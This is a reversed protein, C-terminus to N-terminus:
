IDNIIKNLVKDIALQSDGFYGDEAMKIVSKLFKLQVQNTDFHPFLNSKQKDVVIQYGQAYIEDYQSAYKDTIKNYKDPDIGIKNNEKGKEEIGQAGAYFDIGAIRLEKPKKNLIDLIAYVGTLTFDPFERSQNSNIFFSDQRGDMKPLLNNAVPRFLLGPYNKFLELSNQELCQAHFINLEESNNNNNNNNNKNVKQFDVLTSPRIDKLCKHCSIKTTADPFIQYTVNLAKLEKMWSRPYQNKYHHRMKQNCYLIDTKSGYDTPNSEALCAGHNLRVVLDYEDFIKGLNKGELYPSPGIVLVRKGKILNAFDLDAQSRNNFTEMIWKKVINQSYYM